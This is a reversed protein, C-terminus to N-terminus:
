RWSDEDELLALARATEPPVPEDVLWEARLIGRCGERFAHRAAVDPVQRMFQIADGLSAQLTLKRVLNVGFPPCLLGDMALALAKRLSLGLRARWCVLLVGSVLAFGYALAFVALLAFGAGLALSVGPLAIVVTAGLLLSLVRHVRLAAILPKPDWAAGRPALLSASDFAIRFTPAQPQLPDLLLLRRGGVVWPGAHRVRWGGADSVVLLENGYLPLLCDYLYFALAGVPLLIEFPLAIM